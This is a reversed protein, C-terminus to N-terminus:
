LMTNYLKYFEYRQKLKALKTSAKALVTEDIHKRDKRMKQIRAISEFLKKSEVSFLQGEGGLKRKMQVIPSSFSVSKNGGRIRIRKNRLRIKRAIDSMREASNGSARLAAVNMQVDRKALRVRLEKVEKELAAVEELKAMIESNITYRKSNELKSVLFDLYRWQLCRLRAVDGNEDNNEAM